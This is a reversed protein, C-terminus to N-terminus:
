IKVDYKKIKFKKMIQHYKYDKNIIFNYTNQIGANRALYLVMSNNGYVYSSKSIDHSLTNKSIKILNKEKISKRYKNANDNPHVRVILKIKENYFKKFYINKLFFNFLSLEFNKNKLINKKKDTLYLVSNKKQKHKKVEDLFDELYFNKKIRIISNKFFKKAEKQAYYDNVWIEDVVIMEKNILFRNKYNFWHDLYAIVRKNKQKFKKIARIEFNSTGTSGLLTDTSDVCDKINSIKIKSIKSQFIKKAPGSLCYKYNGPHRKVWSSLIQAGGADKSVITIM